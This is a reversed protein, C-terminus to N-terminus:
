GYQYIKIENEEINTSIFVEKENEDSKLNKLLFEYQGPYFSFTADTSIEIEEYNLREKIFYNEEFIYGFSPNSSEYFENKKIIRNVKEFYKDTKTFFFMIPETIESSLNMMWNSDRFILNEDTSAFGFIGESSKNYIMKTKNQTSLFNNSEFSFVFKLDEVILNGSETIGDVTITFPYIGSDVPAIFSINYNGDGIDIVSYDINESNLFLDIENKPVDGLGNNSSNINLLLSVIEGEYVINQITFNLADVELLTNVTFSISSAGSNGSPDTCNLTFTYAGNSLGLKTEHYTTNTYIMPIQPSTASYYKCSAIEDTWISIIPNKSVVNGNPKKFLIEPPKTDSITDDENSWTWLGAGNKAGVIAYYKEKDEDALVSYEYRTTTGNTDYVNSSGTYNNTVNIKYGAIGSEEDFSNKWIYTITKNQAVLTNSLIKSKTPASNDIKVNLRTHNGWNGAADRSKVKFYFDATGPFLINTEIQNSLAGGAGEPIDDPSSYKSLDMIYSYADVYSHNDTGTWNIYLENTSIWNSEVINQWSATSKNLFLANLIEPQEPNILDVTLLSSNTTNELSASNIVTLNLYVSENHELSLNTFLYNLGQTRGTKKLNNSLNYLNYEYILPINLLSVSEYDIAKTWSALFNDPDNTFDEISIIVSSPNTIDLGAGTGNYYISDNTIYSDGNTYNIQMYITKLGFDSSLEWFKEVFCSEWPSWKLSSNSPFSADDDHNIARCIDAGNSYNLLLIVLKKSTYEQNINLFGTEGINNITLNNAFVIPLFM